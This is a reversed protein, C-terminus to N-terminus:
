PADSVKTLKLQCNKRNNKRIKTGLALIQYKSGSSLNRQTFRLIPCACNRTVFELLKRREKPGFRIELESEINSELM